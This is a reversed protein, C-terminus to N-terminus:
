AAARAAINVWIMGGQRAQCWQEQRRSPLIM